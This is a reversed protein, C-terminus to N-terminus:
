QITEHLKRVVDAPLRQFIAEPINTLSNEPTKGARQKLQIFNTRKSLQRFYYHIIIVQKSNSFLKKEQLTIKINQFLLETMEKFVRPFM